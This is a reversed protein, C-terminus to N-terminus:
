RKREFLEARRMKAKIDEIEQQSKFRLRAV